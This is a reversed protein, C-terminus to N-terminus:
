VGFLPLSHPEDEGGDSGLELQRRAARADCFRERQLRQASIARAPPAVFVLGVRFPVLSTAGVGEVGYTM